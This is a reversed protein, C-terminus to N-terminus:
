SLWSVKVCEQKGPTCLQRITSGRGGELKKKKFRLDLKIEQFRLYGVRGCWAEFAQIDCLM